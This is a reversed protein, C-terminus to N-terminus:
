QSGARPPRPARPAPGCPSCTTHWRPARATRSPRTSPSTGLSTFVLPCQPQFSKLLDAGGSPLHYQGSSSVACHCSRQPNQGPSISRPRRPMTRAADAGGATAISCNGKASGGPCKGVPPPPPMRLTSPPASSRCKAGIQCQLCTCLTVHRITNESRRGILFYQDDGRPVTTSM